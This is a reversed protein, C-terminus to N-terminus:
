YRNNDNSRGGFLGERAPKIEVVTNRIMKIREGINEVVRVLFSYGISIV